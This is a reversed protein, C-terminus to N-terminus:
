ETHADSGHVASRAGCHAARKWYEREDFDPSWQATHCERCSEWARTVYSGDRAHLTGPGHCAECQVGRLYIDGKEERGKDYGSFRGFGTTHCHLCNADDAKGQIELINFARFHRSEIFQPMLEAHCRMCIEFGLYREKVKGTVEDRAVFESLRMERLRNGEEETFTELTAAMEGDDEVNRDLYVISRGAIRMGGREPAMDIRGLARGRDGAFVIPVGADEFTGGLTDACEETIVKGPTAHGRVVLSVGELHPVMALLKEGEMHALLIIVDCRKRQLERLVAIGEEGPERLEIGEIDRPQEGLLAFIGVRNGHVTTIMYPPFLREGNSYLNACIVPLGEAADTQITRLGYNLEREGLAVADYGMRVMAGALFRSRYMQIIGTRGYFDGASLLLLDPDEERLTKLAAARRAV